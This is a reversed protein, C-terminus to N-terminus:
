DKPKVDDIKKLDKKQWKRFIRYGIIIVVAWFILGIFNRAVFLIMSQVGSIFADIGDKFAFSLREGFSVTKVPELEKIEEVERVDIYMSSYAVLSDMKRLSGTLREIDYRTNSLERELMVTDELTESKKLFELLREEQVKLTEVRAETDFYSESVDEASQNQSVIHGLEGVSKFMYEFHESPVRIRISAIRLNKNYYNGSKINQSEIYGEYHKIEAELQEMVQDFELTEVTMSGTKVIKLNGFNFQDDMEGKSSNDYLGDSVKPSDYSAEEAPAEAAMDSSYETAVEEAPAASCGAFIMLVMVIILVISIKRNM